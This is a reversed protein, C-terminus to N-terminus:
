GEGSEAKAEGREDLNPTLAARNLAGIQCNIIHLRNHVQSRVALLWARRERWGEPKAQKLVRMEEDVTPRFAILREREVHLQDLTLAGAQAQELARAVALRVIEEVPLAPQPAPVVHPEDVPPPSDLDAPLESHPLDFGPFHREPPRRGGDPRRGHPPSRSPAPRSLSPSARTEVWQPVPNPIDDETM